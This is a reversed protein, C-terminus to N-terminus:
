EIDWECEHMHRLEYGLYSKLVRTNLFYYDLAAMNVTCGNLALKVTFDMWLKQNCISRLSIPWQEITYM